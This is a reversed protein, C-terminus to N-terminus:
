KKLIHSILLITNHIFSYSFRGFSRENVLLHVWTNCVIRMDFHKGLSIRVFAIM